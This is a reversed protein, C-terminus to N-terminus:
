DRVISSSTSPLNARRYSISKRAIPSIESYAHLIRFFRLNLHRDDAHVCAHTHVNAVNVYLSSLRPRIFGRSRPELTGGINVFRDKAPDKFCAHKKKDYILSIIFQHIRMPRVITQHHKYIKLETLIADVHREERIKCAGRDRKRQFYSTLIQLSVIARSIYSPPFLQNISQV